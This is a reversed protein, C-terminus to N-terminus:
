RVQMELMHVRKAEHKEYGLHETIAGQLAVELTTKMLRKFFSM